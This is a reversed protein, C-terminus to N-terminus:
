LRGSFYSYESEKTKQDLRFNYHNGDYVVALTDGTFIFNRDRDSMWRASHNFVMTDYKIFSRDFDESDIYMGLKADNINSIKKLKDIAYQLYGFDSEWVRIKKPRLTWEDFKWLKYREKLKDLFNTRQDNDFTNPTIKVIDGYVLNISLEEDINEIM